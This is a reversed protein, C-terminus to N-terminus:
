LHHPDSARVGQYARFFSLRQDEPSGETISQNLDNM